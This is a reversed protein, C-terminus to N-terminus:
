QAEMLETAVDATVDAIRVLNRSVGLIGILPKALEPHQAIQDEIYRKVDQKFKHLECSKERIQAALEPDLDHSIQHCADVLWGVKEMSREFSPPIEVKELKAIKRTKKAIRASLAAIKEYDHSIKFLLLIDRLDSAVPQYLALTTTIRDEFASVEEGIEDSTAIVEAAATGDLQTFVKVARRYNELVQLALADLRNHIERTATTLDTSM